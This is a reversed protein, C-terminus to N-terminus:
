LTEPKPSSFTLLYDLRISAGGILMALYPTEIGVHASFVSHVLYGVLGVLAGTAASSIVPDITLMRDAGRRIFSWLAKVSCFYLLLLLTLGSIGTDAGVQLYLNHAARGKEVGYDESVLAFNDPGVGLVPYDMM